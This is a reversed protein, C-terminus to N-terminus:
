LSKQCILFSGFVQLVRGNQRVQTQTVGVLQHDHQVVVPLQQVNLLLAGGGLLFQCVVKLDSELLVSFGGNEFKKNRNQIM